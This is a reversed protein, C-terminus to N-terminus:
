QGRFLAAAPLLQINDITRYEEGLYILYRRVPRKLRDSFKRLNQLNRPAPRQISKIEIFFLPVDM